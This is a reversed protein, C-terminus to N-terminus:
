AILSAAPAPFVVLVGDRDRAQAGEEGKDLFGDVLEGVLKLVIRADEINEPLAAAIQVAHRRHWGQEVSM